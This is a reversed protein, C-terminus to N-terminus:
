SGEGTKPAAGEGTKPAAGAGRKRAMVESVRGIVDKVIGPDPPEPGRERVAGESEIPSPLIRPFLPGGLPDGPKLGHRWFLPMTAHRPSFRVDEGAWRTSFARRPRDTTHNGTSGHLVLGNFILVDGPEVDWCVLDYSERHSDVDPPDELDSDMM